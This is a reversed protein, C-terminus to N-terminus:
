RRRIAINRCRVARQLDNAFRQGAFIEGKANILTIGVCPRYPLTAPDITM